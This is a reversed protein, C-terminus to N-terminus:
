YVKVVKDIVKRCVPCKEYEESQIACLFCFGTHISDGHVFGSDADNLICIKCKEVNDEKNIVPVHVVEKKIVPVHVVEKKVVYVKKNKRCRSCKDPKLYNMYDCHQCVWRKSFSRIM